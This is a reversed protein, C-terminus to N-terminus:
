GAVSFRHTKLSKAALRYEAVYDAVYARLICAAM